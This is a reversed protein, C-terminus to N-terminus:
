YILSNLRPSLYAIFLNIMWIRDQLGNSLWSAYHKGTYSLKLTYWSTQMRTGQNNLILLVWLWESFCFCKWLNKFHRELLCYFGCMFIVSKFTCYAQSCSLWKFPIQIYRCWSISVIICSTNGHNLLPSFKFKLINAVQLVSPGWVVFYFVRVADPICRAATFIFSFHLLSYSWQDLYSFSLM